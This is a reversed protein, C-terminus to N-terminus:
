RLQLLSTGKRDQQEKHLRLKNSQLKHRAKVLATSAVDTQKDSTHENSEYRPQEEDESISAAKRKAGM